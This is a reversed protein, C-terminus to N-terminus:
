ESVVLNNEGKMYLLVKPSAVLQIPDRWNGQPLCQSSYSLHQAPYSIKWFKFLFLLNSPSLSMCAVPACSNCMFFGETFCHLDHILVSVMVNTLFCKSFFLFEHLELTGGGSGLCTMGLRKLLQFCLCPAAGSWVRSLKSYRRYCPDSWCGVLRRESHVTFSLIIRTNSKKKQVIFFGSTACIGRLHFGAVLSKGLSLAVFLLCSSWLFTNRLLGNRIHWIVKQNNIQLGM